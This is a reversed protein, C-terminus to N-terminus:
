KTTIACENFLDLYKKMNNSRSYLEHGYEYGSKGYQTCIDRNDKMHLIARVIGDPDDNAVAVGAYEDVMNYYDSNKDVSTIIARKCAM